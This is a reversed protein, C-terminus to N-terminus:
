DAVNRIEEPSYERQRIIEYRGPPLTIPAHEQHEVVAGEDAVIVRKGDKSRYLVVSDAEITHAHGTAEGEALIFRGAKPEEREMKDTDTEVRRLLVDGQRYIMREEEKDTM